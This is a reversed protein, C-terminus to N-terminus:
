TYRGPSRDPESSAQFGPRLNVIRCTLYHAEGVGTCYPCRGPGTSAATHWSGPAAAAAPAQGTITATTASQITM